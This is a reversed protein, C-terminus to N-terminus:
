KRMARIALRIEQPASDVWPYANADHLWQKFSASSVTMNLFQALAAITTFPLDYTKVWDSNMVSDDLRLHKKAM